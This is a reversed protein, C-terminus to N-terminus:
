SSAFINCPDGVKKLEADTFVADDKLTMMATLVPSTFGLSYGFVFAGIGAVCAAFVANFSPPPSRPAEM